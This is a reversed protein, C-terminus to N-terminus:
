KLAEKRGAVLGALERLAQAADASGALEELKTKAHVVALVWDLESLRQKIEADIKEIESQAAKYQDRNKDRRDPSSMHGNNRIYFANGWRKRAKAEAQQNTM